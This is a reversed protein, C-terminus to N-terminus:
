LTQVQTLWFYACHLRFQWYHTFVVSSAVPSQTRTQYCPQLFTLLLLEFSYVCCKQHAVPCYLMFLMHLEIM